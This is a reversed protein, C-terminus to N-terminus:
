FPHDHNKEEVAIALAVIPLVFLVWHSGAASLLSMPQGMVPLFGLNTGWSVLFHAALLAAGGSLSFYFFRGSLTPWLGDADPRRLARDAIIALLAVFAAQIAVLVLGALGGYRNLLFTPAFDSEVVPVAMVQGNVPERWVTGGWGGARIAELARRLQYGAHPYDQPAAWARLRDAQFPLPIAEPQQYLGRLGFGLGVVLGILALRGLWRWPALPHARVYAWALALGWFLLLLLPSFDHLFWLAFGCVAALLLLPGLYRLWPAQKDYSWGHLRARGRLTLAHAAAAVLVLKTLEFPQFGAWGGEDGALAQAALLALAGAGLARLSWWVWREDPWPIPQLGRWAERAAWALWGFAGALAAGGGGYRQWGAEVSGSGLQLLVMLGGGLLLTLVAMLGKSWLSRVAASWVLLSLWALLYPWLVPVALINRQMELCAGALAFALASWGWRIAPRSRRGRGLVAWVAGFAGVALLLIGLRVAVPSSDSPRWWAPRAWTIKVKSAAEPASGDLWRRARAAVALDLQPATQLVQYRVRGIILRDGTALPVSREWIAQAEATGVATIIPVGDGRGAAGPALAFGEATPEISATDVPVDTLGLRDACYVGGGLRLPRRAALSASWGGFRARWRARWDARCEPLWRGQRRLIAGDYEWRLGGNELILRRPEVALVRFKQEGVAFGAGAVLPWLRVSRPERESQPQWLVQKAPSLNRLRWAGTADRSLLVHDRDAQPSWLAERGLALSQGAELEVTLRRPELWPPARYATWLMGLLPLLWIALWWTDGTVALRERLPPGPISSRTM